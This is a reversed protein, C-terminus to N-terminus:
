MKEHAANWAIEMTLLTEMGRALVQWGPSGNNPIHGGLAAIAMLAQHISPSDPVEKKSVAQLVAIQTKTLANEAPSDPQHRNLTRLLLLQWAIPIFVALANLLSRKGELQRKEYACGTKLAKFYEEITWRARYDDIINLVDEPTDIPEQTILKWEVPEAGEPADVEYVNVCNLILSEPYHISATVSRPVQITTATIHLKAKRASRPKYMERNRPLKSKERKSLVVERECIVRLGNVLDFLRAKDSSDPLQCFRRNYRIRIVFRIQHLSLESFLDFNDAERDMVHIPSAEIPFQTHTAHVLSWWKATESPYGQNKKKPKGTRFITEVGLVGLPRVFSTRSVALAFHGKFGQNGQSVWGLGDRREAGGFLLDTSDHAVVVREACCARAITAEVHGGLIKEPTVKTNNLFRYTAELGAVSNTMEPFSNGPRRAAVDAIKQLRSNLRKDGFNSQEFEKSVSITNKNQM